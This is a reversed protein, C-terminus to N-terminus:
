YTYNAAIYVSPFFIDWNSHFRGFFPFEPLLLNFDRCIGWILHVLLFSTKGLADCLIACARFGFAIKWKRLEGPFASLVGLNMLVRWRNAAIEDFNIGSPFNTKGPRELKDLKIILVDNLVVGAANISFVSTTDVVYM